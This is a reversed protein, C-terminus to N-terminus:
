KGNAGDGHGELRNVLRKVGSWEESRTQVGGLDEGVEFVTVVGDMGGVAVKRGENREWALKNLSRNMYGLGTPMNTFAGRKGDSPKVSQVPVEVDVNIDWVELSGAGDVLAFVSPKVPSWRADYVLDERAIDLVPTVQQAAGPLTVNTAGTAAPPRVKWLKVSWDVSSSLVLDGLDIQGKAPHFDLSMVPAAHGAYKVRGDVGAKAGARDYRHCPYISGEETGALFYTPDSQPFAISTVAMDDTKAPPPSTLELFEQPQSLMDVTWGCVVGDTSCSIINNANQTGVIDLSYVPHTHGSGTLPTKQVPASKARTDWLLVQGSYAGGVILNPHFPSFKATLIDSQAHFIYEPRDHMHLNWVQVLGDPDHPASPNKTYSALVLEPFKTSFGLDSIMRKKSWREDWFQAVERIRRGKKAGSSGYGEDSDDVDVGAHAYDALIDYGLQQDLARELVKTSREVFGIFEESNEVATLEENTLTKFPFNEDSGPQPAGEQPPQQVAKIEEEIEKRLQARIEEEREKQRRSMRKSKPSRTPSDDRESDSGGARREKSPSWEISAQVGKSYTIIEKEKKIENTVQGDIEYVTALPGISLTQMERDIMGASPPFGASGEDSSLQGASVVSTPRTARGPGAPSGPGTSGPRSEGLISNILNNVDTRRDLDESRRPTPSLVEGLPSGTTSQRSASEAKRLERQRKLEALKAKKALIEDRRQQMTSEM